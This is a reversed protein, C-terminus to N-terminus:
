TLKKGVPNEDGFYRQAISETLVVSKPKTLVADINGTILQFSFFSFFNPDVAWVTGEEAYYKQGNHRIIWRSTPIWRLASEIEPLEDRFVPLLPPPIKGTHHEGELGSPLVQIVSYIRDASEHFDDFSLHFDVFSAILIFIAMGIALGAINIISYGKHKLINRIATKFYNKIM